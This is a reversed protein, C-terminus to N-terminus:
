RALTWSQLMRYAAKGDERITEVLRITDVPWVLPAFAVSAPARQADRVLTVHPAFSREEAPWGAVALRQRLALVLAPLADPVRSPAAYVIRNHRWYEIRDIVLDFAPAALSGGIAALLPHRAREVDGLFALTLHLRETGPSRGGCERRCAQAQRSLAQQVGPSPWLAFFLRSPTLGREVAM